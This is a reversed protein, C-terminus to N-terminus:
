ASSAPGQGRAQVTPFELWGAITVVLSFKSAKAKVEHVAQMVPIILTSVVLRGKQQCVTEIEWKGLARISIVM